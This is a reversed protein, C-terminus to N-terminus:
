RLLGKVRLYSLLMSEIPQDTTAALYSMGRGVCWDRVSACYTEVTRQYQKLLEDNITVEQPEGTEADILQLHGVDTPNREEPSLVQICYVEYNRLFFFKLAEEFGGEDLFDSILVVIGPQTSRTVFDRLSDRLSTRDGIELLSLANLLKPLQGKGRAPRFVEDGRASFATVGIKDQNRLAVYGLAAALKRAYEFKTLPTGFDMSKSTDVIVHFALDEEELFLKIFLKELRAFINWDIFRTDDGRVYNRYDAFEVSIGKKRSRREGRQRGRFVRHTLVELADLRAMLAPDLITKPDIRPM